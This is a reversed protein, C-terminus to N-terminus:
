SATGPLLSKFNILRDTVFRTLAALCSTLALLTLINLPFVIGALPLTQILAAHILYFELTLGGVFTTFLWLPRVKKIRDFLQPVDFSLFALPCSLFVLVHLLAYANAHWGHVVM